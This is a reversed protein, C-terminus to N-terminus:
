ILLDAKLQSISCSAVTSSHFCEKWHLDGCLRLCPDSQTRGNLNDIMKDLINLDVCKLKEQLVDVKEDFLVALADFGFGIIAGVKNNPCSCYVLSPHIQLQNADDVM